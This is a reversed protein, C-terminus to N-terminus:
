KRSQFSELMVLRLVEIEELLKAATAIRKEMQSVERQVGKSSFVRISATRSDKVDAYTCPFTLLPESHCRAALYSVSAAYLGLQSLHDASVLRFHFHQCTSSLYTVRFSRMTDSRLSRLGADSHSRHFFVLLSM